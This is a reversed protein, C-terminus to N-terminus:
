LSVELLVSAVSEERVKEPTISNIKFDTGQYKIKGGLNLCPGGEFDFMTQNGDDDQSGRSILSEGMVRIRTSDIKEIVRDVGYRNKVIEM